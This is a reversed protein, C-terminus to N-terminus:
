YSNLTWQSRVLFTLPKARLVFYEWECLIRTANWCWLNVCNETEQGLGIRMCSYDAIASCENLLPQPQPLPGQLPKPANSISTDVVIVVIYLCCRPACYANKSTKLSSQEFDQDEKDILGFSCSWSRLRCSWSWNKNTQSRDQWLISTESWM